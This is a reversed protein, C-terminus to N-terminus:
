KFVTIHYYNEFKGSDLLSSEILYECPIEEIDSPDVPHHQDDQRGGEQIPGLPLADKKLYFRGKKSVIADAM